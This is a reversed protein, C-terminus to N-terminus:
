KLDEFDLFRFEIDDVTLAKVCSHFLKQTRFHLKQNFCVVFGETNDIYDKFTSQNRNIFEVLDFFAKTICSNSSTYAKWVLGFNHIQDKFELFDSAIFEKNELMASTDEKKLSNSENMMELAYFENQTVMKITRISKPPTFFPSVNDVILPYSSLINGHGLNHAMGKNILFEDDGHWQNFLNVVLTGSKALLIENLEPSPFSLISHGDSAIALLIKKTCEPLVNFGKAKAKFEKEEESLPMDLKGQSSAQIGARIAASIADTMFSSCDQTPANEVSPLSLFLSLDSIFSVQSSVFHSVLEVLGSQYASQYTM